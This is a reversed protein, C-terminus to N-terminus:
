SLSGGHDESALASMRLGEPDHPFERLFSAEKPVLHHALDHGGLAPCALGYVRKASRHLASM